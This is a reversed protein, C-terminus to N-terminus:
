LEVPIVASTRITRLPEAESSGGEVAEAGDAALFRSSFDWGSEACAALEAWVLRRAAEGLGAVSATDERWSEPRPAAAAVVYRNLTAGPRQPAAALRVAHGAEGGRMWWDYETDLLPLATRLLAAAAAETGAGAGAEAAAASAGERHVDLHALLAAVMQPLLPPQSRNLYYRRLGNPAFGHRGVCQLLNQAPCARRHSRPRHTRLPTAPLAAATVRHCHAPPQVETLGRATEFMGVSLLGLVVWYSDWYYAERFRGGPVIVGHPMPLMTHREPAAAAAASLRRGLRPWMQLTLTWTLTLTLLTLLTLTLTLSRLQRGGALGKICAVSVQNLASAWERVPGVPLRALLPPASQYDPPQWPELQGEGPRAAFTCLVFRRLDEDCPPKPLAEWRRWCEDPPVLLSLDVFTKSDDPFIRAAQIAVLIPGSFPDHMYKRPNCSAHRFAWRM